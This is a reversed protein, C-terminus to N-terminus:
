NQWSKVETKIDKMRLDQREVSFLVKPVILYWLTTLVIKLIFLHKSFSIVNQYLGEYYSPFATIKQNFVTKQYFEIDFIYDPPLWEGPLELQFYIIERLLFMGIFVMVTWKIATILIATLHEAMAEKLYQTKMAEKYKGVFIKFDILFCQLLWIAVLCELIFIYGKFLQRPIEGAKSMDKMLLGEADLASDERYLTEMFKEKLFHKTSDKNSAVLLRSTEGGFIELGSDRPVYIADQGKRIKDLVSNNEYIGVVTYAHGELLIERGVGDEAGYIELSLNKSIVAQKNRDSFWQGKLLKFDGFHRYNQDTQYVIVPQSNIHIEQERIFSILFGDNDLSQTVKFFSEEHDGDLFTIELRGPIYAFNSTVYSQLLILLILFLFILISAKWRNMKM